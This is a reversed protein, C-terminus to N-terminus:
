GAVARSRIIPLVEELCHLHTHEELFHMMEICHGQLRLVCYFHSADPTRPCKTFGVRKSADLNTSFSIEDDNIEVVRRHGRYVSYQTCQHEIAGRLMNSVYEHSAFRNHPIPLMNTDADGLCNTRRLIRRFGQKLPRANM